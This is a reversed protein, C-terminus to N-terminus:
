CSSIGLCLREETIRTTIENHDQQTVISKLQELNLHDMVYFKTWSTVTAVKEWRSDTKKKKLKFIGLHNSASLKLNTVILPIKEPRKAEQLILIPM